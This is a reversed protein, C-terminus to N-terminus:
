FISEIGKQDAHRRHMAAVARAANWSARPVLHRNSHTSLVAGVLQAEASAQNGEPGIWGSIQVVFGDDSLAGRSDLQPRWHALPPLGLLRYSSAHASSELLAYVADWSIALQDGHVDAFGEEELQSLFLALEDQAQHHGTANTSGAETTLQTFTAGSADFATVIRGKEEPSDTASVRFPWKM